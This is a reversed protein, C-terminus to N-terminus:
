VWTNPKLFNFGPQSALAQASKAANDGSINGLATNVATTGATGAGMWANGVALNNGFNAQAGGILRDAQQGAANNATTGANAVNLMGSEGLHTLDSNRGYTSNNAAVAATNLSGANTAYNQGVTVGTNALNLARNAADTQQSAAFTDQFNAQIQNQQSNSMNVANTQGANYMGVANSQGANFQSNSNYANANFQSNQNAAGANFQSNSNYANANFASAQNNANANFQNSDNVANANFQNAQNYAGMNAVGVMNAQGTNFMSNTNYANANFQQTQNFQGANFQSIQNAAGANFQSNQNAFGANGLSLADGQGRINSALQGQAGAAGLRNAMNAQNVQNGQGVMQSSLNGYGALAQMSRDVAGAQTGLDGLLRQQSNQQGAQLISGLEMGSGGVGRVRYDNMLAARSAAEQQEQAERQQEYLFKEKATAQPSTLAGYQQLASQQAALGGGSGAGNQTDLSGGAMNTLQGLAGREAAVDNPNSSAQSLDARTLWANEMGANRYDSQNTNALEYQAQTANYGQANYGQYNAQSLAANQYNALNTAAQQAQVNATFPTASLQSMGGYTSALNNYAGAQMGTAAGLQNGYNALQSADAANAQNAYGTQQGVLGNYGSQLAGVQNYQNTVANQGAQIGNNIATGANAAAPDLTGAVYGQNQNRQGISNGLAAVLPAQTPDAMMGYVQGISMGTAASIAEPTMPASMTGGASGGGTSGAVLGPSAATPPVGSFNAGSTANGARAGYFNGGSVPQTEGAGPLAPTAARATGADFRAQSQAPPVKNDAFRTAADPFAASAIGVEIQDLNKAGAIGHDQAYLYTDYKQQIQDPTQATHTKWYEVQARYMQDQSENAVASTATNFTSTVPSPPAAVNTTKGSGGLRSNAAGSVVAAM